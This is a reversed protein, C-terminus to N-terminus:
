IVERPDTIHGYLASAAVTAPSALYISSDPNGMRGQFNRNQTSLVVENKALIGQHIGVCPGCGPPLVLGGAEVFITILGKEVAKLYVERSAPCVILRVGPAVRKTKLIAAATELDSLRGNTCTGIFVQDVSVGSITSAPATNDVAHPMAVTPVISNLHYEVVKEYM